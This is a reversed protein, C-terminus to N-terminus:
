EQVDPESSRHRKNERDADSGFVSGSVSALNEAHSECSACAAADLVGLPSPPAVPEISLVKSPCTDFLYEDMLQLCSRVMELDVGHGSVRSIRADISDPLSVDGGGAAIVAAAAIVSPTFGLFDIVRTTKLIISSALGNVASISDLGSASPRLVSVFFHLFDFPTVSRLNWKLTALVLLEMRQVTEPAFVYTPELAQLELLMPVCTEEMKAALSLCAVTLLQFAWGIEPLPRSSLFRDFYSISLFATVPKFGFHSHVQLISNIADQRSTRLGSRSRCLRVYDPRPAHRSESDLLRDVLLSEDPPPPPDTSGAALHPSARHSMASFLPHDAAAPPPPPPRCQHHPSPFPYFYAHGAITPPAITTLVNKTEFLSNERERVCTLTHPIKKTPPALKPLHAATNVIM